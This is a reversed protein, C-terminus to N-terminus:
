VMINQSDKSDDMGYIEKIQGRDEMLLSDELLAKDKIDRRLMTLTGMYMTEIEEHESRTYYIEPLKDYVDETYKVSPFSKRHEKVRMKKFKVENKELVDNGGEKVVDRLSQYGFKDIRKRKKM